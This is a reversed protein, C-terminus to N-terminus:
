RFPSMAVANMLRNQLDTFSINNGRTETTSIQMQWRGEYVKAYRALFFVVAKGWCIKDLLVTVFFNLSDTFTPLFRLHCTYSHCDQSPNWTRDRHWACVMGLLYWVLCARLVLRNFPFISLFFIWNVGTWWLAKNSNFFIRLGFVTTTFREEFFLFWFVNSM